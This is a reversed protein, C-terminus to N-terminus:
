IVYELLFFVVGDSLYMTRNNKIFLLCCDSIYLANEYEDGRMEDLLTFEVFSFYEDDLGLNEPSYYKSFWKNNECVYVKPSQLYPHFKGDYKIGTSTITIIKNLLRDYNKETLTDDKNIKIYSSPFIDETPSILETIKWDGYFVQWMNAFHSIEAKEEEQQLHHESRLNEFLGRWSMILAFGELIIIVYLLIISQKGHESQKMM